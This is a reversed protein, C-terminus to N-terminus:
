IEEIIDVHGIWISRAHQSKQRIFQLIRFICSFSTRETNIRNWGNNFRDGTHIIPCTKVPQSPVFGSNSGVLRQLNAGTGNAGQSIAELGLRDFTVQKQKLQSITKSISSVTDITVRGMDNGTLAVLLM